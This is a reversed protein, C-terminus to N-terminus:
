ETSAAPQDSVAPRSEGVFQYFTEDDRIMGLEARARAEIEGFGQRLDEVEAALAANRDRQQELEDRLSAVERRFSKVQHYGGDGFWLRWQLALLLVVLLTIVVPGSRLPLM